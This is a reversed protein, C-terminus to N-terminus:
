LLLGPVRHPARPLLGELPRDVLRQLPTCRLVQLAFGLERVSELRLVAELDVSRLDGGEAGVRLLAVEGGVLRLLPRLPHQFLDVRQLLARRTIRSASPQSRRRASFTATAM